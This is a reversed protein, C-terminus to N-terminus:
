ATILEKQLRYKKNSERACKRCERRDDPYIYTNQATFEHGRKCHTKRANKACVGNGRLINTKQTVAILHAPNVCSTNNCPDHDLVLGKPIKGKIMEYSFRHARNLIGNNRFVGYGRPHKSAIWEWCGNPMIKVKSWFRTVTNM